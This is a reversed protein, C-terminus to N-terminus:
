RKDRLFVLHDETSEAASFKYGDTNFRRLDSPNRLRNRIMYDAM